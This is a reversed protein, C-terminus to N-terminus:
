KVLKKLLELDLIPLKLAGKKKKLLILDHMDVSAVLSDLLHYGGEIGVIELTLNVKAHSKIKVTNM